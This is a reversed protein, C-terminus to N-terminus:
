EYKENHLHIYLYKMKYRECLGKIYNDSRISNKKLYEIIEYEFKDVTLITTPYRDILKVFNLTDKSEIKRKGFSGSYCSGIYLNMVYKPLNMELEIPEKCDYNDLLNSLVPISKYVIEKHGYYCNNNFKFLVDTQKAFDIEIDLETLSSSRILTNNNKMRKNHIPEITKDVMEAFIGFNEKFPNKIDFEYLKEDLMILNFKNLINKMTHRYDESYGDNDYDGEYKYVGMRLLKNIKRYNNSLVVMIEEFRDLDEPLKSIVCNTNEVLYKVINLNDSHEFALDLGSYGIDSTNNIDIQLDDVLYKIVDINENRKCALMFANYGDNDIGNTDLRLDEALYKIVDVNKNTQCALMFVNSGDNNIVDTDINLDEALYKIVYPNTNKQCALLFGNEDDNNM